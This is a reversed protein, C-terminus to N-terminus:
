PRAKTTEARSNKSIVPSYPLVGFRARERHDGGHRTVIRAFTSWPLFDMLQAFPTKGTNL